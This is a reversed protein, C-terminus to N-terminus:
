AAVLDNAAQAALASIAAWDQAQMLAAPCLWSGGVCLVKPHALIQKANDATVGGTLCFRVQPFPGSLAKVMNLGGLVDAPFLKLDQFGHELALMVDSANAVGPFFPFGSAAAAKVLNETIGPSIGFSAGADQVEQLQQPNLITGVGIQLDPCARVVERVVSLANPTRLTLEVTKFGHEALTNVSRIAQEPDDSVLIPMVRAQELQQIIASLQAQSQSM